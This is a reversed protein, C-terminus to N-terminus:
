QKGVLQKDLISRRLARGYLGLKDDSTKLLYNDLGGFRDISRLAKTSVKMKVFDQLTDSFLRKNQINPYWSRRTHRESFSVNYGSQRNRGDLLGSQFRRELPQVNTPFRFSLKALKELRM